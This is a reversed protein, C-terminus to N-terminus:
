KYNDRERLYALYTMVAVAGAVIALGTQGTKDGLYAALFLLGITQALLWTMVLLRTERNM